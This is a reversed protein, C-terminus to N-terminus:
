VKQKVRRYKAFFGPLDLEDEKFLVRGSLRYAKLSGERIAKDLTPYCIGLRERVEARSLYTIQKPLTNLLEDRIIERISIMLEEKTVDKIAM